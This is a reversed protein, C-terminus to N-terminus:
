LQNRIDRVKRRYDRPSMDFTSKFSRSFHSSDVFGNRFAIQTISLGDFTLSELDSRSRLLRQNKIWGSVSINFENFLRHLYRVSFNFATSVSQPGLDPNNLNQLIHEQVRRVLARRFSTGQTYERDPRFAAATLEVTARLIAPRDCDEITDITAHLQRLHSLLIGGMGTEGEINLGCLDEIGPLHMQAVDYPILLSYQDLRETVNFYAPRTSDWIAVSDKKVISENCGQRLLGEGKSLYLLCFYHDDSQRIDNITRSGSLPDSELRTLVFNNTSHRYVNANFAHKNEASLDWHSHTRELVKQFDKFSDLHPQKNSSWYEEEQEQLVM